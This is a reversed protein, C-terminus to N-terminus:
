QGAVRSDSEQVCRCESLLVRGSSDAACSLVCIKFPRLMLLAVCVVFTFFLDHHFKSLM